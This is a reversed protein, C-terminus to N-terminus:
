EETTDRRPSAPTGNEYGHGDEFVSHADDQHILPDVRFQEGVQHINALSFTQDSIVKGSTILDILSASERDELKIKTPMTANIMSVLGAPRGMVLSVGASNIGWIFGKDNFTPGGSLGHEVEFDVL